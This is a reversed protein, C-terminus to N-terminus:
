IGEGSTGSVGAENNDDQRKGSAGDSGSDSTGSQRVKRRSAKTERRFGDEIREGLIEETAANIIQRLYSNLPIGLLKAARKAQTREIMSISIGYVMPRNIKLALLGHYRFGARPKRITIKEEAM